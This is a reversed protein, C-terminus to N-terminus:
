WGRESDSATTPATSARAYVTPAPTTVGGSVAARGVAVDRLWARANDARLTIVDGNARAPDLGRTTLLTEAALACVCQRMDHGWATLPLAYRSRLYSDALDSAAELADDQTATAVGTLAASPLGFRALDTRDAYAM